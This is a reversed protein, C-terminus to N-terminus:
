GRDPAEGSAQECVWRYSSRAPWKIGLRLFVAAAPIPRKLITGTMVFALARTRWRWFTGAIPPRSASAPLSHAPAWLCSFFFYIYLKIGRAPSERIKRRGGIRVATRGHATQRTSLRRGILM